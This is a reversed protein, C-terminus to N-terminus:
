FFALPEYLLKTLRIGYRFYPYCILCRIEYATRWIACLFLINIFSVAYRFCDFPFMSCVNHILPIDLPWFVSCCVHFGSSSLPCYWQYLLSFIHRILLLFILSLRQWYCIVLCYPIRIAIRILSRKVFAFIRHSFMLLRSSYIHM